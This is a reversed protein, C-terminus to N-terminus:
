IKLAVSARLISSLSYVFTKSGVGTNESTLLILLITQGIVIEVQTHIVRRDQQIKM